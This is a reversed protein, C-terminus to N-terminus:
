KMNNFFSSLTFLDSVLKSKSLCSLQNPSNKSNAYFKSSFKITPTPYNLYSLMGTKNNKTSQSTIWYLIQLNDSSLFSPGEFNLFVDKVKNSNKGFKSPKTKLNSFNNEDFHTVTSNNIASDSVFFNCYASYKVFNTQTLLHSLEASKFNVQYKITNSTVSNYTYFRKLFWFYSYEYFNLFDLSNLNNQIQIPNLNWNTSSPTLSPYYQEFYANLNQFNQSKMLNEAAWINKNFLNTDYFGSNLLKKTMTIKHSNKILKRHLISYRYLWRDWKTAQTQTKVFSSLNLFSPQNSILFNFNEFSFNNFFFSGTKSNLFHCNKNLFATNAFQNLNNKNRFFTLHDNFSSNFSNYFNNFLSSSLISFHSNQHGANLFDLFFSRDRRACTLFITRFNFNKSLQSHKDSTLSCFYTTKFLKTFFDHRQTWERPNQTTEFINEISGIRSNNTTNLWLYFIWNLDHKSFKDKNVTKSSASVNNSFFKHSFIKKINESGSFNNFFFYSYVINSLLSVSIALLWVLFSLYYDLADIGIWFLYGIHNFAQLCLYYKQFKFIFIIIFILVFILVFYKYFSLRFQSKVNYTEYNTWKSNRFVLGFNSLIRKHKSDREVYLRNKFLVSPPLTKYKIWNYLRQFLV